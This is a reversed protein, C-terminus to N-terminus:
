EVEPDHDHHLNLCYCQNTRSSSHLEPPEAIVNAYIRHLLLLWHGDITRAILNQQPGDLYVCSLSGLSWMSARRPGDTDSLETKRWISDGIKSTTSRVQLLLESFGIRRGNGCGYPHSQPEATSCRLQSYSRDSRTSKGRPRRM